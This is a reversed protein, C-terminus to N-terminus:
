SREELRKKTQAKIIARLEDDRKEIFDEPFYDLIGFDDVGINRFVVDNSGPEVFTLLIRDNLHNTQDEAIRRRIRTIFHDGHTEVVVKKGQHVLSILFDALGSQVKPHLHIEPQELVLTEGEELRLGEVIVPLIQSVGFGVHKITSEVGSLSRIFISYSDVSVKKSYIDSCLKFRDCLWYRVAELFTGEKQAFDSVEPQEEIVYYSIPEKSLKDFVEAVYRGDVGVSTTVGNVEYSDKPEQRMPGIYNLRTLFDKLIAKVDGIKPVSKVEVKDVIEEGKKASDSRRETEIEFDTPFFSSYNIRTLKSNSLELFLNKDVFFPTRAELSLKEGNRRFRLFDEKKRDGVNAQLRVEFFDVCIKNTDFGFETAIYLDYDDYADHYLGIEESEKYEVLESKNFVFEVKLKNNNDKGKLIDLYHRVKFYKGMLELPFQASDLEMTQKLLLLLQIFSSKGSSNIGSLITLPRMEYEVVSGIAKFNYISIKM